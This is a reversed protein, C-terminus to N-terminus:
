GVPEVNLGEGGDAIDGKAIVNLADAAPNVAWGEDSRDDSQIDTPLCSTLGSGFLTTGRCLGAPEQSEEVYWCGQM